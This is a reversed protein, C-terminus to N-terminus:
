AVEERKKKKWREVAFLISGLVLLLSGAYKIWRGPDRNVSLVSVTPRPQGDEYSAQYFTIGEHVLPENMSILTEASETNGDVVRVRSSYERPDRTGDYYDIAFRDLKVSFPLQHQQPYFGVAIERTGVTLLAREGLGLWIKSDAGQGDGAVVHIAAPPAQPGYLIKSPAYNSLSAAVPVWEELTITVGGRWGTDIKHGAVQDPSLKGSKVKGDSAQAKWGVAGGKEQTLTFVPGKLGAPTAMDALSVEGATVIKLRAPGAQISAWGPDGGWLWFQQSIRMPGGELRIRAAPFNRGGQSAPVPVFRVDPEAHPLFQDVKLEFEPITVPKFEANPPTWRIPIARFDHGESLALVLDPLEVTASPRGEMLRLNGDLGFRQTLWSGFLLLLIGAHACLFPVHRRKWPLRSLAVSLINVGLLGLILHFWWAKYVWYQGTPTDYISEIFTAAILSFLLALIVIVAFRLSISVDFVKLLIRISLRSDKEKGAM